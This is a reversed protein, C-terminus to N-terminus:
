ADPTPSALLSSKVTVDQWIEPCKDPSGRWENMVTLSHGKGYQHGVGETTWGGIADIIDAACEIARLRDRLM